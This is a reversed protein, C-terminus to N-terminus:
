CCRTAGATRSGSSARSTRRSRLLRGSTPATTSGARSRAISRCTRTRGSVDSRRTALTTLTFGLVSWLAVGGELRNVREYWSYHSYDKRFLGPPVNNARVENIGHYVIVLDFRRDELFRYKLYSDRSSQAPVALNVIRVPKGGAELERRLRAEVNGFEPHLASAGLLLLTRVEPDSTDGAARLEPYFVEHAVRSPSALFGTGHTVTWYGRAVAELLLFCFALYAAWGVAREM